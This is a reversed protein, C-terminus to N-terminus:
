SGPRRQRRNAPVSMVPHFFRTDDPEGVPKGDVEVWAHARFPKIRVGTCWDPWAGAMRCLLATAVSRQLCAQGACRVSVHVVAERAALAQQGTAPRAGRRLVRLTRGLRHPSLRAIPAAVAVALRAAIRRRM